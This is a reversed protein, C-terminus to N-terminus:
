WTPPTRLELCSRRLLLTRNVRIQIKWQRGSGAESTAFLTFVLCYLKRTEMEIPLLHRVKLYASKYTLPGFGSNTVFCIYMGSDSAAASPIVLRNVYEGEAVRVDPASAMVAYKENGSDM